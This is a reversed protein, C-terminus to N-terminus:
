CLAGQAVNAALRTSGRLNNGFAELLSRGFRGYGVIIVLDQECITASARQAISRAAAQYVNFLDTQLSESSAMLEEAFYTGCSHQSSEQRGTASSARLPEQRIEGTIQCRKERNKPHRGGDLETLSTM